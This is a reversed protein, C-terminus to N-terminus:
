EPGREGPNPPRMENPPPSPAMPPPPPPPLTQGLPSTVTMDGKGDPGTGYRNPSGSDTCAFVLLVIWGVLPVLGIFVWWGSHDTDHLRRVLVALNPILFALGVLAGLAATKIAADLITVGVVVLAYFLAWWWYASRSSRGNFTAYKSFGDNIAEGFTV